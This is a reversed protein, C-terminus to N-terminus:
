TDRNVQLGLLGCILDDSVPLGNMMVILMIHFTKDAIPFFFEIPGTIMGPSIKFNPPSAM